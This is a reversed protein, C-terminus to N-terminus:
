LIDYLEQFIQYIDAKGDRHWLRAFIWQSEFPTQVGMRDFWQLFQSEDTALIGADTALQYYYQAWEYVQRQSWAIYCDRM